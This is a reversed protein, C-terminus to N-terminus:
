DRYDTLKRPALLLCQHKPQLKPSFLNRAHHKPFWLAAEHSGEMVVHYSVYARWAAHCYMRLALVLLLCLVRPSYVGSM